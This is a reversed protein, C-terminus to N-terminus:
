HNYPFLKNLSYMSHSINPKIYARVAIMRSIEVLRNDIALELATMGQNDRIHLDLRKGLKLLLKTLMTDENLVAKHLITMGRRDQINVDSGHDLLKEITKNGFRLNNDVAYHFPTCKKMDIANVDAGNKLMELVVCTINLEAALHLSTHGYKNKAQLDSGNNILFIMLDTNRAFIIANMLPTNLKEDPKNIQAGLETYMKVLEIHNYKAAYNIATLCKEGTEDINMERQLLIKAINVHGRKSAIHIPLDSNLNRGNVNIGHELLEEVVELQNTAVAQHVSRKEIISKTIVASDKLSRRVFNVNGSVVARNFELVVVEKANKIIESIDTRRRKSNMRSIRANRYLKTEQLRRVNTLLLLTM